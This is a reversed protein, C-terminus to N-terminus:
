SIQLHEAHKPTSLISIQRNELLKCDLACYICLRYDVAQYLHCTQVHAIYHMTNEYRAM